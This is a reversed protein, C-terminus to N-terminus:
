NGSTINYNYQSQLMQIEHLALSLRAQNEANVQSIYDHSTIVGNALQAASANKVSERLAVIREDENALRKYKIAEASQQTLSIHTNFLFTEKQIDLQQKNIAILQQDNKRTYLGALAWNFRIGGLAYFGFSNNIINLTPRGYAGQAFASVKPLYSTHLQKQQVDLTKKQADYLALEPRTIEVPMTSPSPKVLRANKDIEQHIFLGLMQLYATRSADLEIATQDARILEAKLEDLSSRLATGNALSAAVKDIGNQIDSQQLKNQQQQEEILLVGFFLQHIREKLAYLNVELSQQQVTEDAKKLAQQNRIAGADYITQSVEAQVKYQDKSIQPLTIGPINFPFRFTESQYTAQGSFSVQPLYGKAANEVSYASTKTILDQQKILPYNERALRYCTEITLETSQASIFGAPLLFFLIWYTRKM